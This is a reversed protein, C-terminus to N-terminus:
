HLFCHHIMGLVMNAKLIAIAIFDSLSLQIDTSVGTGKWPWSESLGLTETRLATPM